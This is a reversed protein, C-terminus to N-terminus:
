DEEREGTVIAMLDRLTMIVLQDGMSAEGCRPRKAIVIGALADANGREREAEDLWQAIEFRKRAKCEQVIRRGHSFLWGLDGRDSAGSTPLREITPEPLLSNEYDRCLAEFRTGKSKERSLLEGGHGQPPRAM